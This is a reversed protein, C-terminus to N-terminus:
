AQRTRKSQANKKFSFGCSILFKSLASPTVEVSKAAKLALALEPM